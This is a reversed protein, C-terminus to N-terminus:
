NGWHQATNEVNICELNGANFSRGEEPLKLSLVQLKNSEVPPKTYDYWLCFFTTTTDFCSLNELTM